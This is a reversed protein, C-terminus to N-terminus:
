CRGKTGQPPTATVNCPSQGIFMVTITISYHGKNHLVTFHKLQVNYNSQLHYNIM